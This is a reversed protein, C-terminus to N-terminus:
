HIYKNKDTENPIQLIDTIIFHTTSTISFKPRWFNKSIKTTLQECMAKTKNEQPHDRIM